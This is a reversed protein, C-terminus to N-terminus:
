PHSSRKRYRQIDTSHGSCYSRIAFEDVNPSDLRSMATELGTAETPRPKAAHVGPGASTGHTAALRRGLADHGFAVVSRTVRGVGHHGRPVAMDFVQASRRRDTVVTPGPYLRSGIWNWLCQCVRRGYCGAGLFQVSTLPCLPASARRQRRQSRNARRSRVQREQRRPPGGQKHLRRAPKISSDHAFGFTGQESAAVAADQGGIGTIRLHGRGGGDSTGGLPGPITLSSPPM